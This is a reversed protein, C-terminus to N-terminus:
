VYVLVDKLNGGFGKVKDRAESFTSKLEKFVQSVEQLNGNVKDSM